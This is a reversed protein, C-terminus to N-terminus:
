LLTIRNEFVDKAGSLFVVQNGRHHVKRAEIQFLSQYHFLATSDIGIIDILVNGLSPISPQHLSQTRIGFFHDTFNFGRSQPTSATGTKGGTALPSQCSTTARIFFDDDAVCVFPIGAGVHIAGNKLTVRVLQQFSQCETSISNSRIRGNNIDPRFIRKGYLGNLLSDLASFFTRKKSGGDQACRKIKFDYDELAGPGKNAALFGRKDVGNFPLTAHRLM